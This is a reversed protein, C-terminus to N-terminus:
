DLYDSLHYINNIEEESNKEELNKNLSFVKETDMTLVPSSLLTTIIDKKVGYLNEVENELHTRLQKGINQQNLELSLADKKADQLIDWFYKQSAKNMSEQCVMMQFGVDKEYTKQNILKLLPLDPTDEHLYINYEVPEFFKIPETNFFDESKNIVTIWSMGEAILQNGKGEALDSFYNNLSLELDEEKLLDDYLNLRKVIQFPAEKVGSDFVQSYLSKLLPKIIVM